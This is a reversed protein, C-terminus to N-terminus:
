VPTRGTVIRAFQELLHGAVVGRYERESRVDDIPTLQAGLAARAAPLAELPREGM